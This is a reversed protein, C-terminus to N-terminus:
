MRATLTTDNQSFFAGAATAACTLRLHTVTTGSNAVGATNSNSTNSVNVAPSVRMPTSLITDFFITQSAGTAVGSATLNLHKVWYRQCAALESAYDPTQFPPPLGTAQADLYLGVDAISLYQNAVAVFNSCAATKIKTDSAWAGPTATDYNTGGALMFNLDFSASNDVVWTGITCAPVPISVQTWVSAATLDFTSVFSVAAPINRLNVPYKGIPGKAWFRLVAPKASATGWGFDKIRNGEVRQAVILYDTAALSTKATAGSAVSLVNSNSPSLNGATTVRALGPTAPTITNLLIAWQDAAFSNHTGYYTDSALEQSHQMAGNVIRNYREATQKLQAASVQMWAGNQFVYQAGSVPDAFLQNQVPSAPFDFAM